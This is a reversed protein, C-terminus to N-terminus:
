INIEFNNNRYDVSNMEKVAVSKRKKIKIVDLITTRM